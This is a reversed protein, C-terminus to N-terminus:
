RAETLDICGVQTQYQPLHRCLHEEHLRLMADRVSSLSIGNYDLLQPMGTSRVTERGSQRDARALHEFM